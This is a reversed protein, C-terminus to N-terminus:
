LASPPAELAPEPKPAPLSPIPPPQVRISAPRRTIASATQTAGLKDQVDRMSRLYGDLYGRLELLDEHQKKSSAQLEVVKEQLVDYSKEAKPEPHERVLAVVSTVVAAVATAITGVEKLRQRM